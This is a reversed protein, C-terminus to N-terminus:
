VAKFLNGVRELLSEESFPKVIYDEVGNAICEEIIGDQGLASIMIIRSSVGEEKKLIRAIDVGLMDPLVNDLTILDPALDLAKEIGDDGSGATGVIEWGAEELAGKIFERMFFSDDIILVKKGM